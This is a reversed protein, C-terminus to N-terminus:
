FNQTNIIDNKTLWGKRAIDVGYYINDITDRGHADPSLVIKVGHERAVKCWRWDLDFREPHCNLEIAKGFEAATKIVETLNVPYAERSLLLRGTPHALISFYKNHMAKVIRETMEKEMMKFRSHIAGIVFDFTKLVDDPYDLSGDPLIDSEIGQFIKFDKYKKNLQAIEKRQREIDAIQMGNAYTASRSHDAIVMYKFGLRRCSEAMEAVSNHGDSYTSHVHFIGKLDGAEILKPLANKEAAEIEGMNERLEPPIFQLGFRKYVATESAATLLRKGKWLGYENLKCGMKIARQRLVVNHEKSGTFHLISYPYEKATVVRLDVQIGTKLFVASKTTGKAIISAVSPLTTFTDMVREPRKSCAVIDIDRIIEKRRRLSGGISIEDVAKSRRLAAVIEEAEHLADPFLYFASSKKLFAIGQLIKEQTKEGFGDLKAITGDRCAKELEAITSLKLRDYLAKVRKPGLGEIRLMELLGAPVQKKLEAYYPLNGTTVYETIKKALAEGIGKIEQLRGTEVLATIDEDLSSLTQAANHYARVKFHNEGLIDLLFGIENLLNVIDDKTVM